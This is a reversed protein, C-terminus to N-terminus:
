VNADDAYASYRATITASSLTFGGLVMNTKLKCLLPEFVFVYSLPFLARYLYPHVYLLGVM